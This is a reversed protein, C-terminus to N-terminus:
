ASVEAFMDGNSARRNEIEDTVCVFLDVREERQLFPLLCAAPATTGRAAVEKIILADQVSFSSSHDHVTPRRHILPAGRGRDVPREAGHGSSVVSPMSVVTPM